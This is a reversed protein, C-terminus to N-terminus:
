CSCGRLVVPCPFSVMGEARKIIMETISYDKVFTVQM